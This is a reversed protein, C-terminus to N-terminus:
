NNGRGYDRIDIGFFGGGLWLGCPISGFVYGLLFGGAGLLYNM